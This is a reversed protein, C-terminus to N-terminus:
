RPKKFLTYLVIFVIAWFAAIVVPHFTHKQETSRQTKQELKRQFIQDTKRHIPQIKKRYTATKKDYVMGNKEAHDERYYDRDQMGM